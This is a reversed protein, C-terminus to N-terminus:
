PSPEHGRHRRRQYCRAGGMRGQGPGGQWVGDGDWLPIQHLTRLRLLTDKSLNKVKHVKAPGEATPFVKAQLRDGVVIDFGLEELAGEPALLLAVPDVGESGALTVTILDISGEGPQHGLDLVEGEVTLLSSCREPETAGLLLISALCVLLLRPMM